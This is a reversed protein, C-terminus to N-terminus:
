TLLAPIAHIVIDVAFHAIVAAIFSLRWYCWGYMTGVLSNGIITAWIAYPSAAGYSNLQPLHALGFGISVLIIVPWAISPAISKRGSLRAISWLLMTLIGLRFWVEESVAAAASVLLGGWFGRHGFAPIEPPLYSSTLERLLVLAVGMSLGLLTAVRADSLLKSWAGPQKSLLAALLPTGLGLQRGLWIGLGGLPITIASLYLVSPLVISQFDQSSNYALHALQTIITVILILLLPMFVPQTVAAAKLQHHMDKGPAM